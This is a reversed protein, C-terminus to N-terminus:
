QLSGSSLSRRECPISFGQAMRQHCIPLSVEYSRLAKLQSVVAWFVTAKALAIRWASGSRVRIPQPSLPQALCISSIAPKSWDASAPNWTPDAM